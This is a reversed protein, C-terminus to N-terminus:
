AWWRVFCNLTTKKRVRTAVSNSVNGEVTVVNKGDDHIVFGCHGARTSKVADSSSGNRAMTFISGPSALEGSNAKQFRPGDAKAWQEIQSVGGFWSGFPIESWTDTDLGESLAWSVFIACWPPAPTTAKVGHFEWYGGVIHDIEPGRNSGDPDERKGLQDIAAQLVLGQVDDVVQIPILSVLRERETLLLEEPPTARGTVLLADWTKDGVIGDAKLNQASQFQAVVRATLTGFDGDPTIAYGHRALQQQMYLVADGRLGRRLTEM